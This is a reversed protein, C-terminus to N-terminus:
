TDSNPCSASRVGSVFMQRHVGCWFWERCRSPLPWLDDIFFVPTVNGGWTYDGTTMHSFQLFSCPTSSCIYLVSHECSSMLGCLQLNYLRKDFVQSNNIEMVTVADPCSGEEEAMFVVNGQLLPWVWVKIQFRFLGLTISTDSNSQKKGWFAAQWATM